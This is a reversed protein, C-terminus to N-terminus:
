PKHEQLRLASKPIKEKIKFDKSFCPRNRSTVPIRKRCDPHSQGHTQFSLHIWWRPEKQRKSYLYGSADRTGLAPFAFIGSCWGPLIKTCYSYQNTTRHDYYHHLLRELPTVNQLHLTMILSVNQFQTVNYFACRESARWWQSLERCSGLCLYWSFSRRSLEYCIM